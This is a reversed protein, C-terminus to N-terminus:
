CTSSRRHSSVWLQLPFNCDTTALAAIFADKLTQISRETANVRHNHPKVLHLKCEERILLEKIHKTGQNDMANLKLKFGKRTLEKFDSKYANYIRTDDLGAIPTALIANPKYMYMVLYCISGDFLVFSFNGTLNNYVVGSHRNAFSSYCFVNAISKNCDENIVNPTPAPWADQKALNPKGLPVWIPLTVIPIQLLLPVPSPVVGLGAQLLTVNKLRTSRIGHWPWKMHGKAM